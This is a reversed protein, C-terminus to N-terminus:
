LFLQQWLGDGCVVGKEAICTLEDAKLFLHQMLTDVQKVGKLM